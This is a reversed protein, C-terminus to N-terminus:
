RTHGNGSRTLREAGRWTDDAHIRWVASRTEKVDDCRRLLSVQYDMRYVLMEAKRRGPRPTKQDGLEGRRADAIPRRATWRERPRERKIDSRRLGRSGGFDSM